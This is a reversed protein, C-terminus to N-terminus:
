LRFVATPNTEELSTNACNFFLIAPYGPLTIGVVPAHKIGNGGVGYGTLVHAAVCLEEQGHASLLCPTLLHCSGSGRLKASGGLVDSCFHLGERGGRTSRRQLKTKDGEVLNLSSINRAFVRSYAWMHVSIPSTAPLCLVCLWGANRPCRRCVSSAM